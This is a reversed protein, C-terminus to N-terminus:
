AGAADGGEGDEGRKRRLWYRLGAMALIVVGIAVLLIVIQTPTPDRLSAVIRDALFATAAVGPLLGILSGIAFHRFRIESVGAIVNIVSFPAVPIIRLAITTLLGRQGLTRSIRHVRGGALRAVADRGLLHGIGYTVLASIEAGVLSYIAGTWAGFVMVTVIFMLTIPVVALGALVYAGIVLLPTFPREDIWRGVDALRDVDLWDGVPTWRWLAALALVGAILLGIKLFHRWAPTQQDPDVIQDFLEQPSVPKEPDLLAADPVWEDVEAPIGADLPQLTREGGRLSEIAAILGDHEEEAAALADVSVGLHEALLRRRFAAIPEGLDRADTSAVALDCESDLGMSRNSLNSSAVRAFADDIVMVKAHVMLSVHPESSLRAYYVRLRDHRDAEHLDRLVRGRLVDMTHQELWGGTQEPMVLVVEPGDPERLREALAEAMRHSSFYQNEIYLFRQAAAISDLYLREVERIEGRDRYAPLSRAIAVDLNTLSPQVSPPWPDHDAGRPEVPDAEGGAFRWRERALEGLRAAAEGDVLMQVDHFPPYPKGDPDLRRTDEPRHESTDWRWKSIDLGGSFAIADDVVVIKQHQSAGLPHEGDLCFHVRDHSRWRLKYRPFFERELAYIMAFDWSLIYVHLDPREAAVADLLAGLIVPYGDDPPTDDRVLRLESHIDWGVIFVAHRARIIAERIARYYDAGDIVFAARHAHALHWCNRGPALLTDM